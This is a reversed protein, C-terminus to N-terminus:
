TTGGVIYMRTGNDNFSVGVPQTDQAAVSFSKVFVGTTPTFATSLNYQYVAQNTIGAIFMRTGDNSFAIGQPLTDQAGISFLGSQGGVTTVDYNSMGFQWVRDTSGSDVIFMKSGNNNFAIATPTTLGIGQLNVFATFSASSVDFATSLAYQYVYVNSGIIFMKTGDDNFALGKPFQEQGATSFSTSYTAGALNLGITADPYTSPDSAIINGTKLWLQSLEDTYSIAGNLYLQAIGNVPTGGGGGGASILSTISSM